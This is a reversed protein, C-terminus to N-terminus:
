EGVYIITSKELLIEPHYSLKAKRLGEVGVDDERNIYEVDRGYRKAMERNIMPYAGPIDSFAKEIHVVFEEDNSKEGFSFAVIEGDLRLVGGELGLRSFNKFAREIPEKDGSTEHAEEDVPRRKVWENDMRICEEINEETIDEFCWNGLSEFKKIHNRKQHYKRGSLDSLDSSKYIYDYNDRTDIFQFKGNYHRAILDKARPEVGYFKLETGLQRHQTILEDIVMVVNNEEGCPFLYSSEDMYRSMIMYVDPSDCIMMNYDNCWMYATAYSYECSLYGSNYILKKYNEFDEIDINKFSLM